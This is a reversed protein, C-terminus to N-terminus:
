FSLYISAFFSAWVFLYLSNTVRSHTSYFELGWSVQASWHTAHTENPHFHYLVKSNQEEECIYHKWIHQQQKWNGCLTKSFYKKLRDGTTVHSHSLQNTVFGIPELKTVQKFLCQRSCLRSGTEHLLYWSTIIHPPILVHCNRASSKSFIDQEKFLLKLRGPILSRRINLAKM